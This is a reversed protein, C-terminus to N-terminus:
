LIKKDDNKDREFVRFAFSGDKLLFTSTEGYWSELDKKIENARLEAKDKKGEIQVKNLSDEASANIQDIEKRLDNIKEQGVSTDSGVGFAVLALLLKKATKYKEGKPKEPHPDFNESTPLNEERSLNEPKFM